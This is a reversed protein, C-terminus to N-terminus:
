VDRRTFVVAGIALAGLVYLSAWMVMPGAIPVFSVLPNNRGVAQAAISAAVLAVGLVILRKTNM